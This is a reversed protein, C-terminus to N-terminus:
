NNRPGRPARDAFRNVLSRVDAVVSEPAAVGSEWFRIQGPGAEKAQLMAQQCLAIAEHARMGAGRQCVAAGVSATITCKGPYPPFEFQHRSLIERLRAAVVRTGELNAGPLMVAFEDEGYRAAVDAARVSRRLVDAVALLVQDGSAHGFQRNIGALGDIDLLLLGLNEDEGAARGLSMEVMKEFELRHYLGTLEDTVSLRYVEQQLRDNEVAVAAEDAVASLWDIEAASFNQKISFVEIAGLAANGTALPACIVTAAVPGETAAAQVPRWNPTQLVLCREALERDFAPLRSGASAAGRATRVQLAGSPDTLAIYCAVGDLRQAALHAVHDLLVDNGTFRAAHRAIQSVAKLKDVAQELDSALAQQAALAQALAGFFLALVLVSTGFFALHGLANSVVPTDLGNSVIVFTYCAMSLISSAIAQRLHLRMSAHLVPLFYLLAYSSPGRAAQLILGTIFLVDVVVTITTLRQDDGRKAAAFTSLLIYGCAAALFLDFAPTQPLDAAYFRALGTVTALVVARVLTAMMSRARHIRADRKARPSMHM